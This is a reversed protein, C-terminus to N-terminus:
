RSASRRASGIVGAMPPSRSRSIISSAFPSPPPPTPALVAFEDGGLRAVLDNERVAAKLRNGVGILVEDGTPHGHVDNVKKFGNLDLLLLGHSGGARPPSGLAAKLADEFQRRNPLGTLPDEMALRRAEHEAALRQRNERRSRLLYGAFVVVGGAMLGAVALLEEIEISKVHESAHRATHFVDFEWVVFVAVALVVMLYLASQIDVRHRLAM